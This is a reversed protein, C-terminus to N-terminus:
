AGRHANAILAVQDAAVGAEAACDPWQEVANVVEAIIRLARGRQMSATAAVSKLDDLTFDDRKGALSM